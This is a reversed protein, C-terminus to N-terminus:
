FFNLIGFITIMFGIIVGFNSYKKLNENLSFHEQKIIVSIGMVILGIFISILNM